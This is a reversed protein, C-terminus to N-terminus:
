AIGQSCRRARHLPRWPTHKKRCLCGERCCNVYEYEVDFLICQKGDEDERRGDIVVEQGVLGDPRHVVMKYRQGLHMTTTTCHLPFEEAILTLPKTIHIDQLRMAMTDEHAASTRVLRELTAEVYASTPPYAFTGFVPWTGAWVEPIWTVTLSGLLFDWRQNRHADKDYFISRLSPAPGFCLNVEQPRTEDDTNHRPM